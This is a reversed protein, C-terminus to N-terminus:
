QTVFMANFMDRLDYLQTMTQNYDVAQDAEMAPVRTGLMRIANEVLEALVQPTDRQAQAQDSLEFMARLMPEINVHKGSTPHQFMIPANGKFYNTM